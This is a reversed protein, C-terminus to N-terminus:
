AVIRVDHEDEVVDVRVARYSRHLREDAIEVAVVVHDSQPEAVAM